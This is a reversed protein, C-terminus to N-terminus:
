LGNIFEENVGMKILEIKPFDALFFDDRKRFKMFSAFISVRDNNAMGKFYLIWPEREETMFRDLIDPTTQKNKVEFIARTYDSTFDTEYGWLIYALDIEQKIEDVVSQRNIREYYEMSKKYNKVCEEFNEFLYSYAKVNYATANLNDTLDVDLLRDCYLRAGNPNKNYRLEVMSLLEDVRANFCIRLFTDDVEILYKNLSFICQYLIKYENLYYLGYMEYLFVAIKTERYPTSLGRLKSIVYTPNPLTYMSKQYEQLRSYVRGWEKLETIGKNAMGILLELEDHMGHLSYFEMGYMINKKTTLEKAYRKLIEFKSDFELYKVIKWVIDFSIEKNQTLFKNVVGVSVGIEAALANQSINNKQMRSLITKRM